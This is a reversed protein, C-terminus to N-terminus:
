LARLSAVNHTSYTFPQHQDIYGVSMHLVYPAYACASHPYFGLLLRAHQNGNMGSASCVMFLLAAAEVEVVAEYGKGVSIVM